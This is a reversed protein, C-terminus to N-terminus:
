EIKLDTETCSYFPKPVVFVLKLSYWHCTELFFVSEKEGTTKTWIEQSHVLSSTWLNRYKM